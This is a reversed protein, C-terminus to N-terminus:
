NLPLYWNNEDMLYDRIAEKKTGSFKEAIINALFSPDNRRKAIRMIEYFREGEFALERAHEELLIEELFLQKELLSNSGTFEKYGIVENNDPDHFYIVNGIYLAEDGDGFGVRGRIGMQKSDENYSGDNVVILSRNINRAPLGNNDLYIRRVFIDAYYMHIAAARYIIFNADLDNPNKGISYKYVVTDIDEMLNEVLNYDGEAKNELMERVDNEFLM